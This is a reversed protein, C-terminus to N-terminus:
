AERLSTRWNQQPAPFRRMVWEKIHPQWPVNAVSELHWDSGFAAESLRIREGSTSKSEANVCYFVGNLPDLLRTVSRIYYDVYANSMEALSRINIVLDFSGDQFNIVAGPPLIFYGAFMGKPVSGGPGIIKANPIAQTLYWHQIAGCEPLDILVFCATPWSHRLKAALGGYGAGIELVRRPPRDAFIMELRQAFHVISLDHFDIPKPFDRFVQAPPAGIQAEGMREITEPTLTSRAKRVLISINRRLAEDNFIWARVGEGRHSKFAPKMSPNSRENGQKLSDDFGYSLGMRRFEPWIEPTRIVRDFDRRFVDWHQGTECPARVQRADLYNELIQRLLPDGPDDDDNALWIERDNEMKDFIM